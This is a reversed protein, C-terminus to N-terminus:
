LHANKSKVVLDKSKTTCSQWVVLVHKSQYPAANGM